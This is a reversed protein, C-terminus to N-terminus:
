MSLYPDEPDPHAGKKYKVFVPLPVTNSFLVPETKMQELVFGVQEPGGMKLVFETVAQAYEPKKPNRVKKNVRVLSKM